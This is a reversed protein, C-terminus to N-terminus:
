SLICVIWNKEAREERRDRDDQQYMGHFKIVTQDDESIAGTIENQLSEVITGRLGNSEQKVKENHSLNIKETM